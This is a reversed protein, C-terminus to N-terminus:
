DFCGRLIAFVLMDAAEKLLERYQEIQLRQWIVGSLLATCLAGYVLHILWRDMWNVFGNWYQSMDTGIMDVELPYM